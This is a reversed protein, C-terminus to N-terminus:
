RPKPENLMISGEGAPGWEPQDYRTQWGLILFPVLEVQKKFLSSM